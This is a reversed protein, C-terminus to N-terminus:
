PVQVAKGMGTPRQGDDFWLSSLVGVLAGDDGYLGTGSDGFTALSGDLRRFTFEGVREPDSAADFIVTVRGEGREGRWHLTEGVVAARLRISPDGGAAYHALDRTPDVSREARQGDVTLQGCHRSSYTGDATPAGHCVRAGSWARMPVSARTPAEGAAASALAYALAVLGAALAWARLAARVGYRPLRWDNM